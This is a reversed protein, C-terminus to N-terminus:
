DLRRMPPVTMAVVVPLIACAFGLIGVALPAGMFGAMAGALLTGLPMLGSSLFHIGLVRGRLHAPTNTQILTNTLVNYCTHVVGSIALLVIAVAFWPTFAFFVLSIGFATAQALMLPGRRRQHYAPGALLAGAISGVGIASMLIGLGEPGTGMVDKAFIPMLAIYPQGLLTPILAVVLLAFVTKESRVYNWAAATDQLVSAKERGHRGTTGNKSEPVVMPVTWAVALLYIATQFFYAGGVGILAVLIGALMPGLSRSVNFATSNLAIANGLYKEEVLDSVIAQRAPHQFAQAIGAILATALVHWTQVTGTVVLVALLFNVAANVGQFVIIQPKRGYRDALVGALMSFVLMPGAKMAGTLGLLLPSGTMDYMLWGRAVNDMWMGMSTSLQGLWLLRFDRFKLPQFTGSLRLDM